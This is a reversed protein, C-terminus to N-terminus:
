LPRIYGPDFEALERLRQPQLIELHHKHLTILGDKRMQQLVRNLHVGSMGTADALVEHTLPLDFSHDGVLDVRRLRAHLECFLHGLHTTKEHRGMYALWVRLTAQEILAISIFARALNPHSAMAATVAQRNLVTVVAPTLAAVRGVSGKGLASLDCLDGVILFDTIQRSGDKFSVSRAAWGESMIHLEPSDEDSDFITEGRSYSRTSTMTRALADREADGLPISRMRQVLADLSM